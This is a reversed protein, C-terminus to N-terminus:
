KKSSAKKKSPTKKKGDTSKPAKVPKRNCFRQVKNILETKTKNTLLSVPNRARTSGPKKAKSKPKSKPKSGEQKTKVM